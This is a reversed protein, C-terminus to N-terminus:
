TQRAKKRNRLPRVVSSSIDADIVFFLFDGKIRNLGRSLTLSASTEASVQQWSCYDDSKYVSFHICMILIIEVSKQSLM